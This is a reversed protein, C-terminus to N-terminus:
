FNVIMRIEWPTEIALPTVQGLYQGQCDTFSSTYSESVEDPPQVTAASFEVNM